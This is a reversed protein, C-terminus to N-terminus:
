PLPVVQDSARGSPLILRGLHKHMRLVMSRDEVRLGEIRRALEIEFQVVETKSRAGGAVILNSAGSVISAYQIQPMSALDRRLTALSAPPVQLFYWAAIPWNSFPAAVDTRLVLRGTRRLLAVADSARQASVGVADGIDRFSARPDPELARRLGDALAAPVSKAAAARPPRAPPIGRVQTETLAGVRWDSGLRLVDTVLSTHVSRVGPIQSFRTLIFEAMAVDDSAAVTAILDRRGTTLDISYIEPIRAAHDAVDLVHGPECTFEVMASSGPEGRIASLWAVGRDRIRAWRRALTVADTGLVPALATWAVRPELQLAHIIELDVDDLPSEQMTVGNHM